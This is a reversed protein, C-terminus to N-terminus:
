GLVRSRWDKPMGSGRAAVAVKADKELAERFKQVGDRLRQDEERRGRFTTKAGCLVDVREAM